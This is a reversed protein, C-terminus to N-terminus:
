QAVCPSVSKGAVEDIAFEPEREVRAAKVDIGGCTEAGLWVGKESDSRDEM